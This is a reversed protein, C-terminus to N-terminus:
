RKRKQIERQGERREGTNKRMGTIIINEDSM